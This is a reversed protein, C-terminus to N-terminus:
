CTPALIGGITLFIRIYTNAYVSFMKASLSVMELRLEKVEKDASWVITLSETQVLKPVRPVNILFRYEHRGSAVM